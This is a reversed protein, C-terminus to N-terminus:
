SWFVTVEITFAFHNEFLIIEFSDTNGNLVPWNLVMGM